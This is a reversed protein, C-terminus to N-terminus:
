HRRVTTNWFIWFPRTQIQCVGSTLRFFSTKLLCVLCLSFLIAPLLTVFVTVLLFFLFHVQYPLQFSPSSTSMQEHKVITDSFIFLHPRATLITQHLFQKITSAIIQDMKSATAIRWELGQMWFEERNILEWQACFDGMALSCPRLFCEPPNQSCAYAKCPQAWLINLQRSYSTGSSWKRCHGAIHKRESKTNVLNGSCTAVFFNGELILWWHFISFAYFTCTIRM